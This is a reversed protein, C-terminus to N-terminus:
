YEGGSGDGRGRTARGAGRDSELRALRSELELRAARLAAAEDAMASIEDQRRAAIVKLSDLHAQLKETKADYRRLQRALAVNDRLLSHLDSPSAEATVVIPAASRPREATVSDARQAGLPLATLAVAVLAVIISRRPM